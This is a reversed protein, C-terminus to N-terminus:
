PVLLCSRSGKSFQSPGSQIAPDFKGDSLAILLTGVILLLHFTPALPM